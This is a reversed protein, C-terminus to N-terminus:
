TPTEAPARLRSRPERRPGTAFLRREIRCDLMRAPLRLDGFLNVIAHLQPQLRQRLTQPDVLDDIKRKRRQGQERQIPDEAPQRLRPLSHKEEAQAQERNEGDPRSARESIKQHLPGGRGDAPRAM